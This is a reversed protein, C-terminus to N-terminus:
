TSRTRRPRGRGGKVTDNRGVSARTKQVWGPGAPLQSGRDVDEDDPAADNSLTLDVTESQIPAQSGRIIRNEGESEPWAFLTQKQPLKGKDHPRVERAPLSSVPEEKPIVTEFSSTRMYTSDETQFSSPEHSSRIQSFVDELRPFENESDSSIAPKSPSGRELIKTDSQVAHLPSESTPSNLEQSAVQHDAELIDSTLPPEKWGLDEDNDDIKQDFNEDGFSSSRTPPSKSEASPQPPLSEAFGFGNTSKPSSKPDSTLGETRQKAFMAKIRVSTPPSSCFGPFNPSIPFASEEEDGNTQDTLPDQMRANVEIGAATPPVSNFGSFNPSDPIASEEEKDDTKDVPSNQEGSKTPNRAAIHPSSGFDPSNPSSPFSSEKQKEDIQDTLSLHKSSVKGEVINLGVSSRWGADKILDFIEKRVGERGKDTEHADLSGDPSRTNLVISDVPLQDDAEPMTVDVEGRLGGGHVSCQQDNVRDVLPTKEASGSCILKPDILEAFSLEIVGDEIPEEDMGPMEFKSYIREGTQMDYSKQNQPRDRQALIIRLMGNEILHGVTATRYESVRPQWNTEQSMDLQKFAIIAGPTSMDTTLSICTSLDEPLVPLDQTNRYEASDNASAVIDRRFPQNVAVEDEDNEKQQVASQQNDTNWTTNNEDLDEVGSPPLIHAFREGDESKQEFVRQNFQSENRKRKKSKRKGGVFGKNSGQQQPDWRQVFPFPPTSLEIGEYCCEVARLVIKQTWNENEELEGATFSRTATAANHSHSEKVPRFSKMLKERTELEDQASKPTRLGLSGFLMRRSSALDLKSRAKLTSKQNLTVETVALARTPEGATGTSLCTDGTQNDVFRSRMGEITAEDIHGTPKEWTPASASKRFPDPSVLEGLSADPDLQSHTCLGVM